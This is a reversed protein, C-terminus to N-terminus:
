DHDDPINRMLAYYGGQVHTAYYCSQWGSPFLFHESKDRCFLKTVSLGPEIKKLLIRGGSLGPFLGVTLTKMFM